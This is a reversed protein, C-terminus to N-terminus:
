RKRGKSRKGAGFLIGFLAGGVIAMFMDAIATGVGPLSKNLICFLATSLLVEIGAAAAAAFAPPMTGQKSATRACVAAGILKIVTCLVSIVGDSPHMNKIILATILLLIVVAATGALACLLLLILNKFTTKKKAHIGVTNTLTNM